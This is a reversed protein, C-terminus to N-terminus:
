CSTILYLTFSSCRNWLTSHRSFNPHLLAGSWKKNSLATHDTLTQDGRQMTSAKKGARGWIVWKTFNLGHVPRYRHISKSHCAAWNHPLYEIRHQLYLLQYRRTFGEVTKANQANFINLDLVSYTISQGPDISIPIWFQMYTVVFNHM